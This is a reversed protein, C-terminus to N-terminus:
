AAKDLTMVDDEMEGSADDKVSTTFLASFGAKAARARDGYYNTPAMYHDFWYIYNLLEAYKEKLQQYPKLDVDFSDNNERSMTEAIQRYKVNGNVNAISNLCKLDSPVKDPSVVNEIVKVLGFLSSTETLIAAAVQSAKYAEYHGEDVIMEKVDKVIDDVTFWAGNEKISDYNDPKMVLVPIDLDKIADYYKHLINTAHIPLVNDNITIIYASDIEDMESVEMRSWTQTRTSAFKSPLEDLDLKMRYAALKGYKRKPAPSGNSTRVIKPLVVTSLEVVNTIGMNALADKIVAFDVTGNILYANRNDAAVKFAENNDYLHEMRPKARKTGEKEYVVFVKDSQATPSFQVGVSNSNIRTRGRSFKTTMSLWNLGSCIVQNTHLFVHFRRWTDGGVYGVADNFKKDVIEKIRDKAGECMNIITESGGIKFVFDWANDIEEIENYFNQALQASILRIRNQINAKTRKTYEVQERSATVEVEGIDVTIIAGMNYLNRWANTVYQDAGSIIEGTIPYGVGGQVVYVKGYGINLAYGEGKVIRAGEMFDLYHVRGNTVVPKVSMFSLQQAVENAFASYDSSDVVPVTVTVGNGESVAEEAMLSVTPTGADNLFMSYSRCIGDKISRVTFADTYAFPTKSGLGFAGIKDNAGDKTSNFYGMYVRRVTDDDMGIGFDQVSFYPELSDPLHIVGPVEPKGADIHSDVANCYLERVMSGIKNAYITSSLVKFAKANMSIVADTDTSADVGVRAIKRGAGTDLLM